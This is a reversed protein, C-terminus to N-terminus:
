HIRRLAQQVCYEQTQVITFNDTEVKASQVLDPWDGLTREILLHRQLEPLSGMYLVRDIRGPRSSMGTGEVHIGVAPDIAAVNNTTIIWVIGELTKVGSMANIVTDFSLHQNKVSTRGDFVRDFDEFLVTCPNDLNNVRDMFETDSLTNLHFRYIPIALRRALILALTSKGTGGPGHLLIGRRHPIARQKFWERNKFWKETEELLSRADDPLFATGDAYSEPTETYEKQDYMFSRDLDMFVWPMDNSSSGDQSNRSVPPEGGLTERLSEVSLSKDRGVVEHVMFRSNSSAKQADIERQRNLLIAEQLIREVNTWRFTTIRLPTHQNARVFLIDKGRICTFHTDPVKFPVNVNMRLEQHPLRLIAIWYKGTPVIYWPGSRLYRVTLYNIGSDVTVEVVLFGYIYSFFSRVQRWGAAAVAGLGALAVFHANSTLDNLTM